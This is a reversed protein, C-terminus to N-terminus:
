QFGQEQMPDMGPQGVGQGEGMMEGQTIEQGMGEQQQMQEQMQQQQMQEQMQQQQMQQQDMGQEQMPVQEALSEEKTAHLDREEQLMRSLAILEKIKTPDISNLAELAKIAEINVKQEARKSEATKYLMDFQSSTINSHYKDSLALDKEKQAEMMAITAQQEAQDAQAKQQEQQKAENEKQAIMEVLERKNQIPAANIIAEDPINIGANMKMNLYQLYQNEKQTASDFGETIACDYKKFAGNFFEQSPKENVIREIKNPTFNKQVIDMIRLGITRQACKLADFLPKLTTLGAKQRALLAVGSMSDVTQGLLEETAGPIDTFDTNFLNTLEVLTPSIDKTPMLQIDGMDAGKKLRLLKLPAPKLVEDTNVLSSEKVVYGVNSQADSTTLQDKRLRNYIYQSDRLERMLGRIKLSYDAMDPSFKAIIPIFPYNDLGLPNRGHYVVKGAVLLALNVTPYMTEQVQIHPYDALFNNLGEKNGTWEITTSNEADILNIKKRYDRYYFEDYSLLDKNLTTNEMMYPFKDANFSGSLQEILNKKDPILSICAARTLYSRKWIANCDSFDRKKFYPDIFFTNYNSFDMKIEGSIPDDRFDAWIEIISIGTVLAAQYADSIVNYGDSSRMAHGIVKSMQDATVQDGNDIPICVITSRNNREYGSVMNIPKQAKNFFLPNADVVSERYVEASVTPDGVFFRSDINAEAQFSQNMSLCDLYFSSMKKRVLIDEDTSFSKNMEPFLAM